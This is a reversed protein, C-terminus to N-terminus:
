ATRSFAQTGNGHHVDVDLIAVREHRLRLHAAAVASNNLFCFGSALDRYAHHGASPLTRLDRGRRGDRTSGGNDGCRYGRVRCGLHRPGIPCSTDITHWGLRGVIHTPYTAANRVPHMNAIM